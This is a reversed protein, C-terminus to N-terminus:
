EFKQLEIKILFYKSSFLISKTSPEQHKESDILFADLSASAITISVSHSSNSLKSQSLTDFFMILGEQTKSVLHVFFM